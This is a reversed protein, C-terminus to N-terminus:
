RRGEVTTFNSLEAVRANAPFAATRDIRVDLVTPGTTSRGLVALALKELTRVVFGRAGHARALAAFDIEPGDMRVSRGYVRATGAEVMRMRADNMVVFVVDLGEQVCTALEMGFMQFGYDGSISVVTRHPAALKAGIAAGLGSGMSGLGLSAIFQDPRTARVHHISFLTHEGIDTAYVTDAPFLDALAAVVAGPWLPAGEEGPPPLEFHAVGALEHRWPPAGELASALADVAEGCEAEIAVDIRYNRGFASPDLDVQIMTRTAQLLPSWSNTSPESLGCGLALVVDPPHQELWALASPHGGYGFVGLCLPSTESVIGKAKPSTIVPLRLRGALARVREAAGRAGSGCLLLPASASRLAVAAAAIADPDLAPSRRPAPALTAPAGPALAVDLPLSLFVPGRESRAVRAAAAVQHAAHQPVTLAGAFRTVSRVMHVVDIAAPSGEQLANRGFRARPVEGGIVLVPAGEGRAAALGTVANTVGPGSTVLVCPLSGPRMRVHGIAMFVASSEHRAHVVRVRARGVLADYIPGIAGGPVGYVTDVGARELADVIHDACRAQPIVAALRAGSEHPEPPLSSNSHRRKLAALM